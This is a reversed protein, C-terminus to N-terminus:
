RPAAGLARALEREDVAGALAYILGREQWVLVGVGQQHVEVHPRGALELSRGLSRFDADDAEFVFLSLSEDSPVHRYFVLAAATGGLNCRRGGELVAGALAPVRPAIQLHAEFYGEVEGPSGSAIKLREPGRRAFELHDAVLLSLVDRARNRSQGRLASWGFAVGAAAAALGVAVGLARRRSWRGRDAGQRRERELTGSVRDRLQASASWLGRQAALLAQTSRERDVWGACSACLDAHAEDRQDALLWERRFSRCESSM